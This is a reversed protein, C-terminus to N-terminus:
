RRRTPRRQPQVPAASGELKDRGVNIVKRMTYADAIEKLVFDDDGAKTQIRV